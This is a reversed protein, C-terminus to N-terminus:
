CPKCHINLLRISHEDMRTSCWAEVSKDDGQYYSNFSVESVSPFKGSKAILCSNRHIHFLDDSKKIPDWYQLNEEQQWIKIVGEHAGPANFVFSKLNDDKLRSAIAITGEGGLSHGTLLVEIDRKKKVRYLKKLITNTNNYMATLTSSLSIRAPKLVYSQIERELEAVGLGAGAGTAAMLAPITVFLSPPFLFAGVGTLGLGVAGGGVAYFNQGRLHLRDLNLIENLIISKAKGSVNSIKFMREQRFKGINIEVLDKMFDSIDKSWPPSSLNNKKVRVTAEMIGLDALLNKPESVVTGRNAIIIQNKDENFWSVTRVSANENNICDIEKFGYRTLTESHRLEALSEYSKESAEACLFLKKREEEPVSKSIIGNFRLEDNMCLVDSSFNLTLLLILFKNKM